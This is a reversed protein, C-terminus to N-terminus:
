PALANALLESENETLMPFANFQEAFLHPRLEARREPLPKIDGTVAHVRMNQTIERGDAFIATVTLDVVEANAARRGQVLDASPRELWDPLPSGDVQTIRFDVVRGAERVGLGTQELMIMLVGDRSVSDIMIGARAFSGGAATETDIQFSAGGLKEVSFGGWSGHRLLDGPQWLRALRNSEALVTGDGSRISAGTGDLSGLMDAIAGTVPPQAALATSIGPLNTIGAAPPPTFQARVKVAVKATATGGDSDAITYTITADGAFGPRPHFTLTGEANIVVDGESSTASVVRIRDGDPDRDNAIVPVTVARSEDTVARDDIAVPPPNTVTFTVYTTVSAGAPDTATVPVKYTGTPQGPTNGQSADHTPTGSFTGTAPDFTIGPPLTSLDVSLVPAGQSTDVDNFFGAVSVPAIPAGDQAAVGPIIAVTAPDLPLGTAPDIVIPADNVGTVTVTLAAAATGGNGDSIRYTVTTTRTEGPALDVFTTDPSFTYDGNPEVVFTGGHDGPVPSSLGVGVVPTANGTIVGGVIITDTDIDSDAGPGIIVNGSVSPSAASVTATDNVAVPADNVPVIHIIAVATNSGLAGDNVTVTVLRDVTSPNESTSTYRVAQIATNYDAKTASGTFSITIQGAISTDISSAIGAPLSGAISLRDGDRANTLVISASEINSDDIDAVVAGTDAIAVATGNETFTTEYPVETGPSLVVADLLPSGSQWPNAGYNTADRFEIRTVANTAAFTFTHSEWPQVGLTSFTTTGLRVGDAYVAIASTNPLGGLHESNQLYNLTYQQGPITTADQHFRASATGYPGDNLWAYYSGEPAAGPMVFAVSPETGQLHNAAGWGDPLGDVNADTEFSGNVLSPRPATLAVHPADNVPTVHVLATMTNSNVTGDNVTIAVHRDLASPTESSNSFSIAQIALAYDAKSAVGSLTITHTATDYASATIGIPMAGATLLDAAQADTLVITASTMNASDVDNVSTTADGIAVAAGNETFTAAYSQAPTASTLVQVNQIQFQAHPNGDNIGRDYTFTLDGSAAVGAPLDITLPLYMLNGAFTTLNGGAGNQYTITTHTPDAPDTTLTAYVIGGISVDLTSGYVTGFGGADPNVFVNFKIQASGTAAPGHDLGTLGSQTLSASGDQSQFAFGDNVELHNFNVDGTLVWGAPVDYTAGSMSGNFIINSNTSNTNLTPADNVPTVVISLVGTTSGGNGDIVTYTIDPVTGNFNAIPTFIYGGSNSSFAFDGVNPIHVAQGVYFDPNVNFVGPVGAVTFEKVILTGGDVDIDNALVGQVDAVVLFTDEAITTSDNTSMPADNAPVVHITSVAETGAGAPDFVVFHFLRDTTDPTDSTNEYTVGSLVTRLTVASLAGGSADKIIFAAGGDHEISVDIGGIPVTVTAANGAQFTFGGITIREAAGDNLNEVKILGYSVTSDDPDTIALDPDAVAIAAGNDTFTNEYNVGSTGHSDDGDLDILAPDNTGQITLILNASAAKTATTVKITDIGFDNGFPATVTDRLALTVVGTVGSNFAVTVTEWHGPGSLAHTDVIVGNLETQLVPMNSNSFAGVSYTFIYDTNPQLTLTPTAYVIEPSPATTATYLELFNGDAALHTATAPYQPYFQSTSANAIFGNKNAPDDGSWYRSAGTNASSLFTGSTETEFNREFVTQPQDQITCTFTETLTEGAKLAQAASSANDLTYSYQGNAAISLTGHAGAVATTGASAIVTGAVSTVTIPLHEPDSDIGIGNDDTVVNGNVTLAGDETVSASNDVAVPPDNVPVVHITSRAINSDHTGDNVTVTVIRDTTEPIDSTNRFAIAALATAYQAKSAAGTLTITTSGAADVVAYGIGTAGITGTSGNAVVVGSVLLQDSVQKNTLTVVGSALTTDNTDEIETSASAIAVPAGNETFTTEYSTPDNSYIVYLDDWTGTAAAGGPMAYIYARLEYTTNPQLQYDTAAALSYNPNADYINGTFTNAPNDKSLLAGSKFGDTSIALAFKFQGGAIRLATEQLWTEPIAGKTTFSMTIYEGQAISEALTTSAVGTIHGSSGDNSLPLGPGGAEASVTTFRDLGAPSAWSANAGAGGNHPYTIAGWVPTQGAVNAHPTQGSLDLHPDSLLPMVSITAANSRAGSNDAATYTIPTPAGNFTSLATFTIAGTATNVSWTGEGSVVLSDGPNTTGTIKVSSAVLTGDIDSDNGLVAVTIPQHATGSANDNVAVPADNVPVVHITAVAANSNAAGDNVIVSVHRDASSPADTTNAFTIAQIASQYAALSASGTLTIAHTSTNYASATIGAPMTGAALLDGAQADTLTITASQLTTNDPDTVSDTSAAIAVAAGNETFTTEYGTGSTDVVHAVRIDDIAFDNGGGNPNIDRVSFLHPGPTTATFTGQIHQWTGTLALDLTQTTFPVGDILLQIVPANAPYIPTAWADFIYTEGVELTINQQLLDGTFGTPFGTDIITDHGSATGTTHDYLTIPTFGPGTIQHPGYVSTGTVGYTSSWGTIGNEFDGNTILNTGYATSRADLDVVPPDNVPTVHITSLALNSTTGFTSNTVSVEIRRDVASPNETSNTFTIAKLATEYTALSASGSLAISIQGGSSTLTYALGSVTGSAAASGGVLLADATQANGLVVSASSLTTGLVANQTIRADGDVVAVPSAGETFTTTFASGSATSNNADLDLSLLNVSQASVFTFDGDGDHRFVANAYGSAGNLTYEVSWSSVNQWTFGALSTNEGNQNQTGSVQVGGASITAVLNTPNDLTYGTLGQLQPRVTERTNIMGGVGDIDSIHFDPSGVAYVTQSTGSAFIEWKITAVSGGNLIISPDDGQTFYSVTSASLSTVTAKLDISSGGITGANLWLASYGVGGEAIGTLGNTSTAGTITPAATTSIVLPALLGDWDPANITRAEISGTSAELQWNGGHGAAGTDDTSAAIDAGTRAALDAIFAQGKEGKAVDCGYLLIDGNATLVSRIVNLEDAHSGLNAGNIVANGLRLEGESGHSIIHIASVGSRGALFGAIQALGDRSSDLMVVQAGAPVNAILKGADPMSGDIFAIEHDGDGIGTFAPAAAALAAVLQEHASASPAADGGAATAPEAGPADAAADAPKAAEAAVAVAAGDFVVRPELAHFSMPEALEFAPTASTQQATTQQATQASQAAKRPFM